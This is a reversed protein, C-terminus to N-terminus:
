DVAQGAFAHPQGVAVSSPRHTRWRPRGEDCPTVLLAGAQLPGDAEATRVQRCRFCRHRAHQFVVTVGRGKKTFPMQTATQFGSWGNMTKVLEEAEQARIYVKICM